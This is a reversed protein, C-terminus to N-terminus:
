KLIEEIKKRKEKIWPLICETIDSWSGISLIFENSDFIKELEAVSYRPEEEKKM